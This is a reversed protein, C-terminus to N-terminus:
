EEVDANLSESIDHYLRNPKSNATITRRAGPCIDSSFVHEFEVGMHKLAFIPTDTGSCGTGVKLPKTHNDGEDLEVDIRKSAKKTNDCDTNMPSQEAIAALALISADKQRPFRVARLGDKGSGHM